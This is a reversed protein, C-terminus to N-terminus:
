VFRGDLVAAYRLVRGLLIDQMAPGNDFADIPRLPNVHCVRIRGVYLGQEIIRCHVTMAAGEIMAVYLGSVSFREGPQVLAHPDFCRKRGGQTRHFITTVIPAPDRIPPAPPAGSPRSPIIKRM